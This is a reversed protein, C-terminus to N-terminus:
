GNLWNIILCQCDMRSLIKCIWFYNEKFKEDINFTCVVSLVPERGKLPNVIKFYKKMKAHYWKPTEISCHANDGNSLVAEALGHHLNFYVNQSISAIYELVNDIDQKLIHELVDTHIVLDVAKVPM